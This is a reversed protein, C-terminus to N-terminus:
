AVVGEDELYLVYYLPLQSRKTAVVSVIRYDIGNTILRMRQKISDDVKCECRYGVAVTAMSARELEQANMQYLNRCPHCDIVTTRATADNGATVSAIRADFGLATGSGFTSEVEGRMANIEKTTFPNM